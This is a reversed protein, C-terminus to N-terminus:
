SELGILASRRRGLKSFSPVTTTSYERRLAPSARFRRYISTYQGSINLPVPAIELGRRVWGEDDDSRRDDASALGATGSASLLTMATGVVLSSLRRKWIETTM